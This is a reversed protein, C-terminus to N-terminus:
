EDEQVFTLQLAEKSEAFLTIVLTDQHNSKLTLDSTFTNSDESLRKPVSMEVSTTWHLSVDVSM